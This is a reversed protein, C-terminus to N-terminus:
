TTPAEKDKNQGKTYTPRPDQTEPRPKPSPAKGQRKQQYRTTVKIIVITGQRQCGQGKDDRDKTMRPPPRPMDLCSCLVPCSSISKLSSFSPPHSSQFSPLLGLCVCKEGRTRKPRSTKVRLSLVVVFSLFPLTYPNGWLTCTCDVKVEGESWRDHGVFVLCGCMVLFSAGRSGGVTRLRM